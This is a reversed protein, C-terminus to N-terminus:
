IQPVCEVGIGANVPRDGPFYTRPPGSDLVPEIMEDALRYVGEGDIQVAVSVLVHRPAAIFPDHAPLVKVAEACGPLAVDYIPGELGGRAHIGGVEISVAIRVDYRGVIKRVIELPQLVRSCKGIVPYHVLDLRGPDVAGADVWQIHIAVAVLIEHGVGAMGLRHGPPLVISAPGEPGLM